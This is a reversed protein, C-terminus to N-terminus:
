SAIPFSYNGLSCDHFQQMIELGEEYTDPKVVFAEAGLKICQQKQIENLFTSYIIVRIDQYRTHQKLLELTQTGTLRPMNLDLVILSPLPKEYLADLYELAMMGDQVFHINDSFSLERCMMEMIFVDEPDDDAILIQAYKQM